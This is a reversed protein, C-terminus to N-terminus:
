INIATWMQQNENYGVLAIDWSTVLEALSPYHYSFSDFPEDPDMLWWVGKHCQVLAKGKPLPNKSRLIEGRLGKTKKPLANMRDMLDFAPMSCPFERALQNAIVSSGRNYAAVGM